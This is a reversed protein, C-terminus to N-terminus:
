QPLINANPLPFMESLNSVARVCKMSPEGTRFREILAEVSERGTESIIALDAHLRSAQVYNMRYKRQLSQVGMGFLAHSAVEPVNEPPNQSM